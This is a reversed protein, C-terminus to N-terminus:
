PLRLKETNVLEVRSSEGGAKLTRASWSPFFFLFFGALRYLRAPFNLHGTVTYPLHGVDRPACIRLLLRRGVGCGHSPRSRSLADPHLPRAFARRPPPEAPSCERQSSAKPSCASAVGPGGGALLSPCLLWTWSCVCSCFQCRPWAPSVPPDAFPDPFAAHIQSARCM